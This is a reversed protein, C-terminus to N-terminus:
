ARILGCRVRGAGSHPTRRSASADSVLCSASRDEPRALHGVGPRRHHEWGTKGDGRSSGTAHHPTRGPINLVHQEHSTLLAFMLAAGRDNPDIAWTVPKDQSLELVDAILKPLATEDKAM